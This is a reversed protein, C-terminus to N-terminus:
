ETVLNVLAFSLGRIRSLLRVVEVDGWFLPEEVHNGYFRSLAVFGKEVELYFSTVVHEIFDQFCVWTLFCVFLLHQFLGFVTGDCVEEFFIRITVLQLFDIEMVGLLLEELLLLNLFRIGDFLSYETIFPIFFRLFQGDFLLGVGLLSDWFVLPLDASLQFLELPLERVITDDLSHDLLFEFSILSESIRLFVVDPVM